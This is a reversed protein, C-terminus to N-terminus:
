PLLGATEDTIMRILGEEIRELDGDARLEPGVAALLAEAAESAPVLTCTAPDPLREAVGHRAAYWAATRLLEPAAPPVAASRRPDLVRAALARVLGALLVAEDARLQVDSARVEVTPYRESLRAQWYVQGTDRVLGTAVLRHIRRDYDAGDTFSPPMGSVPWRGFVVTRWSAFGTDKGRWLPSNASLATLVPLWPRLGNLVAVGETRGPVGVHVHMGNIMQEDTLAPADRRMRRYRASPTVPVPLRDTFPASGCAALRCACAEAADTLGHRLRLLHGGLEDLSRCVPTAVELQAQLLERQVEGRAVAPHLGAEALVRAARAVPVGTAPSVLLYEEEVGITLM